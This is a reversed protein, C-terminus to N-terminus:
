LLSQLTEYGMTNLLKRIQTKLRRHYAYAQWKGLNIGPLRGAEAPAMGDKYIARLFLREKHDLKVAAPIESPQTAAENDEQPTPGAFFWQGIEKLNQQRHLEVTSGNINQASYNSENEVSELPKFEPKSKRLYDILLNRIVTSIYTTFSATQSEKYSKIRAFNDKILKNKIYDEADQRLNENEIRYRNTWYRITKACKGFWVGHSFTELIGEILEKVFVDFPEKENYQRVLEWDYEALRKNVHLLALPILHTDQGCHDTVWKQLASSQQKILNRAQEVDM